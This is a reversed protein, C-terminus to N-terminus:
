HRSAPVEGEDAAASAVKAAKEANLRDIAAQVEAEWPYLQVKAPDFPPLQPIPEGLEHLLETTRDLWYRFVYPEGDGWYREYAALAHHRARAPDGIAQWLQALLYQAPEPLQALREAEERADPLQNLHYKSLALSTESWEDMFNRERTMRVAEHYADRALLWSQQRAYWNGRLCYLAQIIPRNQGERAISLAHAIQVSPNESRWFSFLAADLEADGYRYLAREEKAPHVGTEHHQEVIADWHGLRAHFHNLRDGCVSMVMGERDVAMALRYSLQALKLAFYLKSEYFVAFNAINRTLNFWNKARLNVELALGYADEANSRNRFASLARGANTALHSVNHGIDIEPREGWGRPFLPRLIELTESYAQLNFTLANSVEMYIWAAREYMGLKLCVRIAHLAPAIEELTEVEDYPRHPQSSFHDVAKEGQHLRREPNAAAFAVSRVVPHLDHRQNQYQLLGRRELDKIADDLRMPARQVDRHSAWARKAELYGKHGALAAAYEEWIQQQMAKSAHKWFHTTKPDDLAEVVEPEPPLLPNLALLTPYDVAEQLLALQSLMAASDEPLAAIAAKLIHNRRQILDLHGLDLKAGHAADVVWADFNGRDPLYDNVLGAIVGIVLPHNDCNKGLYSRIAASDGRIGCARFLAEADEALLGDLPKCKVGPMDQGAANLLVRPILRSTALIKSPAAHALARLLDGDEDRITDRPNRSAITDTPNDGSEDALEAADIRHYAVLVRELGDLVLLWPRAKLQALLEDRMQLTKQTRFEEFPRGTMYALVHRCFDAMVAGQEYFSYWFRGAWDQRVHPALRTTWQWTLMSKGNGGIAHFLLLNAPNDPSAWDSLEECQAKRGIFDHGPLYDAKAYFAPPHPIPSSKSPTPTPLPPIPPPTDKSHAIDDKLRSIAPGILKKFTELSDFVDYVREINSDSSIKKARERFANLKDIKDSDTEVHKPLVPHNDMIFLLIPRDLRLAEDFELETISKGDPNRHACDLIQGYRFSILCIYGASDRVMDLSADVVTRPSAGSYEMVKPHLGYRNIADILAARHQELDTFTSSVMVQDVVKPANTKSMRNGRYGAIDGELRAAEPPRYCLSHM